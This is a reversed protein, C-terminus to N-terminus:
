DLEDDILQILETAESKANEMVGMFVINFEKLNSLHYAYSTNAKLSNADLPQLCGLFGLNGTDFFSGSFLKPIEDQIMELSLRNYIVALDDHYDYISEYLKM